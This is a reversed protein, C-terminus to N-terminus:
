DEGEDRRRAAELLLNQLKSKVNPDLARQGDKFSFHGRREQLVAIVADDGYHTGYEAQTIEGAEFYLLARGRDGQVMLLGTRRSLNLLQCLDSLSLTALTGNFDTDPAIGQTGLAPMEQTIQQKSAQESERQVKDLESTDKVSRFTYSMMGIEV